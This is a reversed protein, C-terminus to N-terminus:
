THVYCENMSPCLCHVRAMLMALVTDECRVKYRKKAERKKRGSDGTALERDEIVVPYTKGDTHTCRAHAGVAYRFPSSPRPGTDSAGAADGVAEGAGGAAAVAVDAASKASGGGHGGNEGALTSLKQLSEEYRFM